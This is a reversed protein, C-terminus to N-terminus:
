NKLTNNRDTQDIQESTEQSPSAREHSFKTISGDKSYKKMILKGTSYNVNLLKCAKKISAKETTVM